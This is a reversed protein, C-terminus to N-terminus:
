QQRQRIRRKIAALNYRPYSRVPPNQAYIYKARFSLSARYIQRGTLAGSCIARHQRGYALPVVRTAPLPGFRFASLRYEIARQWLGARMIGLQCAWAPRGLEVCSRAWSQDREDLDGLLVLAGSRSASFFDATRRGHWDPALHWLLRTM